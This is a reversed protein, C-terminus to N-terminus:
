IKGEIAWQVYEFYPEIDRFCDILNNALVNDCGCLDIWKGSPDILDVEFWNNDTFNLYNNEECSECLLHLHSDDKITDTNGDRYAYHNDKNKYCFYQGDIFGEVRRDGYAGIVIKFGRYEIYGVEGGYWFCDLHKSDIMNDKPVCIRVDIKKEQEKLSEYFKQIVDDM